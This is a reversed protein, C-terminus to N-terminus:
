IEHILKICLLNRSSCIYLSQVGFWLGRDSCNMDEERSFTGSDFNKNQHLHLDHYKSLEKSNLVLLQLYIEYM